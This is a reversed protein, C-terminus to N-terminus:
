GRNANEIGKKIEEIPVERSYAGVFEVEDSGGGFLKGLKQAANKFAFSDAAPSNKQIADSIINSFDTPNSGSKLQIPVAGIGDVNRTRGTIPNVVSLTGYVLVSNAIIKVDKISWDYDGFITIITNKVIDVPIYELNRHQPHKKLWKAPPQKNLLENFSDVKVALGLDKVLTTLEVKNSM